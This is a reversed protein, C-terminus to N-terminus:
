WAHSENGTAPHHAKCHSGSIGVYLIRPATTVTHVQLKATVAAIRVVAAAAAWSPTM